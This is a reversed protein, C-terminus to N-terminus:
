LVSSKGRGIKQKKEEAKREERKRTRQKWKKKEKKMTNTMGIAIYYPLFKMMTMTRQVRRRECM